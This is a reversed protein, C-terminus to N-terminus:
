RTRWEGKQRALEMSVARAIFQSKSVDNEDCYEDLEEKTDGGLTAHVTPQTGM